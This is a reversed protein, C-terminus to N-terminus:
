QQHTELENIHTWKCGLEEALWKSFEIGDNRDTYQKQASEPITGSVRFRKDRIEIRTEYRAGDFYFERFIVRTIEACTFVERNRKLWLFERYYFVRGAERDIGLRAGSTLNILTGLGLIGALVYLIAAISSDTGQAEIGSKNIFLLIVMSLMLFFLCIYGM